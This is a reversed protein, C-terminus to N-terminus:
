YRVHTNVHTQIRTDEHTRTCIPKGSFEELYVDVFLTEFIVSKEGRLRDHNHLISGASADARERFKRAFFREDRRYISNGCRHVTSRIEFTSMETRCFKTRVFWKDPTCRPLSEAILRFCLVCSAENELNSFKDVM